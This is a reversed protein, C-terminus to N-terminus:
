PAATLEESGGSSERRAVRVRLGTAEHADHAARALVDTWTGRREFEHRHIGRLGALIETSIGGELSM